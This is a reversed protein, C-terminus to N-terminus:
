TTQAMGGTSALVTLVPACRTARTTFVDHPGSRRTPPAPGEGGCFAAMASNVMWAAASIPPYPM